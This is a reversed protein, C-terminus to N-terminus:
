CGCDFEKAFMLSTNFMHRVSLKGKSCSFVFYYKCQESECLKTYEATGVGPVNDNLPVGGTAWDEIIMASSVGDELTYTGTPDSTMISWKPLTFKCSVQPSSTTTGGTSVSGGTSVQNVGGTSTNGGTSSTGGTAVSGGISLIESSSQGGTASSTAGGVSITGVSVSRPVDKNNPLVNTSTKGGTGFNQKAIISAQGGVGDTVNDDFDNEGQAACGSLLVALIGIQKIM